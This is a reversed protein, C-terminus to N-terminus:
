SAPPHLKRQWCRYIAQILWTASPFAQLTRVARQRGDSAALMFAYSDESFRALPDVHLLFEGTGVLIAAIVGVIGTFVMVHQQNKNNM